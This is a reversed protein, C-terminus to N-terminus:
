LSKSGIWVNQICCMGSSSNKLISFAESMSSSLNIGKLFHALSLVVKLSFIKLGLSLSMLAVWKVKNVSKDYRIGSSWSSKRVSITGKLFLSQYKFCYTENFMHAWLIFNAHTDSCEVIALTSTPEYNITRWKGGFYTVSYRRQDREVLSLYYM